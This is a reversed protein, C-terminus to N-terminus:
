LWKFNIYVYVFSTIMKLVESIPCISNLYFDFYLNLVNSLDTNPCRFKVALNTLISLVCFIFKDFLLVNFLATFCKNTSQQCLIFQLISYFQSLSFNKLIPRTFNHFSVLM